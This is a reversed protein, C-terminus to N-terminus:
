HRIKNLQVSTPVEHTKTCALPTSHVRCSEVYFRFSTVSTVVSRFKGRFADFTFPELGRAHGTSFSREEDLFRPQFADRGGVRVILEFRVIESRLNM